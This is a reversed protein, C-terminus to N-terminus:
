GRVAVTGEGGRLKSMCGEVFIGVMLALVDMSCVPVPNLTGGGRQGRLGYVWGYGEIYQKM